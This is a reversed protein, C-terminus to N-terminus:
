KEGLLKNIELKLCEILELHQKRDAKMQDTIMTNRDESVKSDGLSDLADYLKSMKEGMIDTEM